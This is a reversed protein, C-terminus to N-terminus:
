GQHSTRICESRRVAPMRLPHVCAQFLAFGVAQPGNVLAVPPISLVKEKQQESMPFGLNGQKRDYRAM